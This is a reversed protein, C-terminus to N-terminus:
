QFAPQSSDPELEGVPERRKKQVYASYDDHMKAYTAEEKAVKIMQYGAFLGLGTVTLSNLPEDLYFSLMILMLLSLIGGMGCISGLARVMFSHNIMEPKLTFEAVNLVRDARLLKEALVAPWQNEASIKFLDYLQQVRQLQETLDRHDDHEEALGASERLKQRIRTETKQIRTLIDKILQHHQPTTQLSANFLAPEYVHLSSAWFLSNKEWKRNYFVAKTKRSEHAEPEGTSVLRLPHIPLGSYRPFAYSGTSGLISDLITRDIIDAQLLLDLAYTKCTNSATSDLGHRNISLSLHFAQLRSSREELTAKAKEKVYRTFSNAPEGQATLEANLETIATQELAMNEKYLTTLADLKEKTTEFSIGHLGNSDLYRMEEQKLFGHCDQLNFKCGFLNKLAKIIPNTTTSLDSYFGVSDLVSVPGNLVEQLSLILCAHWFINSGTDGDMVCYTVFYKTM